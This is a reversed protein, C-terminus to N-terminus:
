CACVCYTGTSSIHLCFFMGSLYSTCLLYVVKVQDLGAGMVVWRSGACREDQGGVGM